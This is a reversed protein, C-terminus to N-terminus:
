KNKYFSSDLTHEEGRRKRSTEESDALMNLVGTFNGKYWTLTSASSVLVNLVKTYNSM